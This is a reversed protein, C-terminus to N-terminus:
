NIETKMKKLYINFIILNLKVDTKAIKNMVKASSHELLKQFHKLNM